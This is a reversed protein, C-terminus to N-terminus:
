FRVRLSGGTPGLNVTVQPSNGQATGPADSTGDANVLGVIGLVAGVATLTGGAIFAINAGLALGRAADQLDVADAQIPEAVADDHKGRASVGLAVGVGIGVVGVGAVIWPLPGALLGPEQEGSGEGSSAPAGADARELQRLREQARRQEEELQQRNREQERLRRIRQEMAGRDAADPVRDLYAQYADAAAVAEGNGERARALNYLLTPEKYMAFAQELLAAAESFKGQNYLQESQAFLELAREKDKPDTPQQEASGVPAAAGAPRGAVGLAIAAALLPALSLIWRRM